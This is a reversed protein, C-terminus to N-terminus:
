AHCFWMSVIWQWALYVFCKVRILGRLTHGSIVQHIHTPIKSTAPGSCTFSHNFHIFINIFEGSFHFDIFKQQIQNLNWALTKWKDYTNCLFWFIDLINDWFHGIILYSISSFANKSNWNFSWLQSSSKWLEYSGLINWGVTEILAVSLTRFIRCAGLKIWLVFKMKECNKFKPLFFKM